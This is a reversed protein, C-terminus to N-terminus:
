HGPSSKKSINAGTALISDIQMSSAMAALSIWTISTSEAKRLLFHRFVLHDIEGLRRAVDSLPLFIKNPLKTFCEIAELLRTVEPVLFEFANKLQDTKM